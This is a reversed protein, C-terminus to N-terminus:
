LNRRRNASRPGIVSRNFDIDTIVRDLKAMDTRWHVDANLTRGTDGEDNVTHPAYVTVKGIPANLALGTTNYKRVEAVVKVLLNGETRAADDDYTFSVWSQKHVSGGGLYSYCEEAFYPTFPALMRCLADYATLVLCASRRSADNTYLRGKSLEIYNDALVDWAFERIAKLAIDFQYHDLADTVTQITDLGSWCGAIPLATVPANKDLGEKELQFLAYRAINWMKTQFPIGRGCRELFMYRLGYGCWHCGM